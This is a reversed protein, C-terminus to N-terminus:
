DLMVFAAWDASDSWEHSEAVTRDFADRLSEGECFHTYVSIMFRETFAAEVPWLAMVIAGAGAQKFGRQLGFVGDSQAIGGGSDCASLFVVRAHSLDLRSVDEATFIGDAMSLGYHSMSSGPFDDSLYGHTSIHILDRESGSLSSLASKRARGGTIQESAKGAQRLLSHISQVERRTFASIEDEGKVAIGGFLIASQLDSLHVSGPIEATSSVRRLKYVQGLTQGGNCPLVESNVFNLSGDMSYYVTDGPKLYPKLPSWICDSLATMVKQDYYIDPNSLDGYKRTFSSIDLSVLRAHEYEPREIVAYVEYGCNVFEVAAEGASLQKRVAENNVGRIDFASADRRAIVTFLSNQQAQENSEIIQDILTGKGNDLLDKVKEDSSNLINQLIMHDSKLLIGKVSLAYNYVIDAYLGQMKERMHGYGIGAASLLHGTESRYKDYLTKKTYSDSWILESLLSSHDRLWSWCAEVLSEDNCLCALRLITYADHASIIDLYKTVLLRADELAYDGRFTANALCVKCYAQYCVQYDLSQDIERSLLREAEEYRRQVILAYATYLCAEQRAHEDAITDLAGLAYDTMRSLDDDKKGILGLMRGQFQNNSLSNSLAANVMTFEDRAEEYVNMEHMLSQFYKQIQTNYLYRAAQLDTQLLRAFLFTLPYARYDFMEAAKVLNAMGNIALPHNEENSIRVVEDIMLALVQGINALGYRPVLYQMIRNKAQQNNTANVVTRQLDKIIREFFAHDYRQFVSDGKCTEVNAYPFDEAFAYGEQFLSDRLANFPDIEEMVMQELSNNSALMAYNLVKGVSEKDIGLRKAYVDSIVDEMDQANKEPFLANFMADGLADGGWPQPIYTWLLMLDDRNRQKEQIEGSVLADVVLKYITDGLFAKNWYREFSEPFVSRILKVPYPDIHSLFSDEGFLEYELYHLSNGMARIFLKGEKSNRFKRDDLTVSKGAFGAVMQLLERSQQYVLYKQWGEERRFAEQMAGFRPARGDALSRLTLSADYMKEMLAILIPFYYADLQEISIRAPDTNQILEHTQGLLNVERRQAESAIRMHSEDEMLYVLRSANVARIDGELDYQSIHNPYNSLDIFDQSRAAPGPLLLCLALVPILFYRGMRCVASSRSQIVAM